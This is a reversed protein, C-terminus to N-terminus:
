NEEVGTFNSSTSKKSIKKNLNDLEKQLELNKLLLQEKEKSFDQIISQIKAELLINQNYLTSIKNHYNQILLNVDVDNNMNSHEEM